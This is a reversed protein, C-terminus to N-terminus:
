KKTVLAQLRQIADRLSSTNFDHFLVGPVPMNKNLLDAPITEGYRDVQQFVNDLVAALVPVLAPDDVLRKLKLSITGPGYYDVAMQWDKALDSLSAFQKSNRIVPLAFGIIVLLDLDGILESKGNLVQISHAM